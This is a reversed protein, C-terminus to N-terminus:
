RRRMIIFAILSVIVILAVVSVLYVMSNPPGTESPKEIPEQPESPMPEEVNVTLSYGDVEIVYSGPSEPQFTLTYSTSMGPELTIVTANFVDGNILVEVTLEGSANGLNSVEISIEVSDGLEITERSVDVSTVKLDPIYVEEKPTKIEIMFESLNVYNLAFDIASPSIYLKTGGSFGDLSLVYLSGTFVAEEMRVERSGEYEVTVKVPVKYVGWGSDSAEFYITVPVNPAPDEPNIYAVSLSPPETDQFYSLSFILNGSANVVADVLFYNTGRFRAKDVLQSSSKESLSTFLTYSEIDRDTKLPLLLRGELSLWSMIRMSISLSDGDESIVGRFIPKGPFGRRDLGYKFDELYQIPISNPVKKFTAWPPINHLKVSGNTYLTILRLGNYDPRSAGLTTTTIFYTTGGEYSMTVTRDAHIHGSLVLSVKYSVILDLTQKTLEMNSRWNGYLDNQRVDGSYSVNGQVEYGWIPHHFYLVKTLNSYKQLVEKLWLFQEYTIMGANGTDIAVFLFNKGIVRYYYREGVHQEYAKTRSDHNGPAFLKPKGLGFTSLLERLKIAELNAARDTNDGTSVILDPKPNLLRSMLLATILRQNSEYEFGIHVDSVQMITISDMIKSNVWLADTEEFLESSGGQVEYKVLISYLGDIMDDPIKVDIKYLYLPGEMSANVNIIELPRNVFGLKGGDDYVMSANVQVISIESKSSLGIQLTDGPNVVAPSAVKPYLMHIPDLAGVESASYIPLLPLVLVIILILGISIRKM